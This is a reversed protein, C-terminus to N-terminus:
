DTAVSYILYAIVVITVIASGFNSSSNKAEYHHEIASWIWSILNGVMTGVSAKFILGMLASVGACGFITNKWNLILFGRDFDGGVVNHLFLAVLFGLVAGWIAGLVASIFREQFEM